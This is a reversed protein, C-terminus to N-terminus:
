KKASTKFDELGRLLLRKAFLASGDSRPKRGQYSPSSYYTKALEVIENFLDQSVALPLVKYAGSTQNKGDGKKNRM